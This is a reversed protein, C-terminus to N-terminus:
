NLTLIFVTFFPLFALFHLLFFGSVIIVCCFFSFPLLCCFLPFVALFRSFRSFLSFGIDLLNIESKGNKAIWLPWYFVILVALFPFVALFRTFRSFLSFIRYCLYWFIQWSITNYLWDLCSLVYRRTACHCTISGNIELESMQPVRSIYELTTPPQRRETPYRKKPFHANGQCINQVCHM